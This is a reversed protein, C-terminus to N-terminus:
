LFELKFGTTHRGPDELQLTLSIEDGPNVLTGASPSPFLYEDPPLRRRAILKEESDYLSLQIDPMPQAFDADNRFRLQMQLVGPDDPAAGIDRHLVTYQSPARHPPVECGVVSCLGEAIAAGQPTALVLERNFWALQALLLLLLVGALILGPLTSPPTAAHNVAPEMPMDDRLADPTLDSPIDLPDLDLSDSNAVSPSDKAATAPALEVDDPASDSRYAAAAVPRTDPTDLDRLSDALEDLNLESVPEFGNANPVDPLDILDSLTSSSADDADSSAVGQEDIDSLTDGLEPGSHLVKNDYASFVQDCRFCRAQGAARQLVDEDIRYLTQCAPCRTQM